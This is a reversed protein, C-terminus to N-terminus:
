FCETDCTVLKQRQAVSCSEKKFLSFHQAGLIEHNPVKPCRKLKRLSSGQHVTFMCRVTYVVFHFISQLSFFLRLRGQLECTLLLCTCKWKPTYDWFSIIFFIKSVFWVQVLIRPRQPSPFPVDLMLIAIYRCYSSLMIKFSSICHLKVINITILQSGHKLFKDQWVNLM